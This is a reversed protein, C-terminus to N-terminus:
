PDTRGSAQALAAESRDVYRQLAANVRRDRLGLLRRRNRIVVPNRLAPAADLLVELPPAARMRDPIFGADLALLILKLHMCKECRGCGGEASPDEWCVRVHQRFLTRSVPDSLLRAVKDLRSTEAGLHHFQFDSTGMLHDLEPHTGWAMINDWSMSSSIQLAGVHEAMCLGVLALAGGHTREWNERRFLHLTRLNTRLVAYGIGLEAAVQRTSAQMAGFVAHDAYPVDFGGVLILLDPQRAEFFCSHLSDVGLSFALGVRGAPRRAPPRLVGAQIPQPPYGWWGCVIKQYDAQNRHWTADADAMVLRRGQSLAPVQLASAVAEPMLRLRHSDCRVLLRQQDVRMSVTNGSRVAGDIRVDSRLRNSLRSLLRM